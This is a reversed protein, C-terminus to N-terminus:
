FVNLKPVAVVFKGGWSRIQDMQQCIETKINWPLILVYDPKKAAIEDPPLIPIHTGPLFRNQKHPNRDVTFAILDARERRLFEVPHQGEGARRLRM